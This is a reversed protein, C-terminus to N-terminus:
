VSSFPRKADSSGPTDIAREALTPTAAWVRKPNDNPKANQRRRRLRCRRASCRALGTVCGHSTRRRRSRARRDRACRVVADTAPISVYRRRNESGVAVGAARSPNREIEIAERGDIRMRPGTTTPCACLMRTRRMMRRTRDHAGAGEGETAGRASAFSCHALSSKEAETTRQEVWGRQRPFGAGVRKM